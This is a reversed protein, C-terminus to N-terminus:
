EDVVKAGCENVQQKTMKPNRERGKTPKLIIARRHILDISM